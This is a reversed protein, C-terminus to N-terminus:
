VINKKIESIEVLNNVIAFITLGASSHIQLKRSINRRHTIVTHISLYLTDAIEKNTMGKVVCVVIEKERSSLIDGEDDVPETQLNQLANIKDYLVDSDDYVSIIDDYKNLINKDVHSSVLAVVKIDSDPIDKRFKLLDFYGGFAPNVILMDFDNMSTCQTLLELSSIELPQIKLDPLRKLAATVGSRIIVSNEAIAIKM